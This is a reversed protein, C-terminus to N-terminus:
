GVAQWVPSQDVFTEDGIEGVKKGDRLRAIFVDSPGFHSRTNSSTYVVFRGNPSFRPELAYRGTYPTVERKHTGDARMVWVVYGPRGLHKRSKSVFVIRRGDPSFSPGLQFGPWRTLRKILKGNSRYLYIDCGESSCRVKAVRRGDPSAAGIEGDVEESIRRTTGRSYAYLDLDGDRISIFSLRGDPLYEPDEGDTTILRTGGGLRRVFIGAPTGPEIIEYAVRQGDPSISPNVAFDNAVLERPNKGGPGAIWIGDEDGANGLTTGRRFVIRGNRGAETGLQGFIAQQAFKAVDRDSSGGAQTPPSVVAALLCVIGFALANIRGRADRGIIKM